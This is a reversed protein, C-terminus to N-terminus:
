VAEEVEKEKLDDVITVPEEEVEKKEIVKDTLPDRREYTTKKATKPYEALRQKINEEREKLIEKKEFEMKEATYNNLNNRNLAIFYYYNDEWYGDGKIAFIPTKPEGKGGVIETAYSKINILFDDFKDLVIDKAKAILMEDTIEDKIEKIEEGIDSIKKERRTLIFILLLIIVTAILLSTIIWLSWKLLFTLLGLLLYILVLGSSVILYIKYKRDM